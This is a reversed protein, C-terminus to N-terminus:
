KDFDSKRPSIRISFDPIGSSSSMKEKLLEIIELIEEPTPDIGDVRIEVQKLDTLNFKM